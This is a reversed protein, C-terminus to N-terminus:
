KDLLINTIHKSIVSYYLLFDEFCKKRKTDREQEAKKMLGNRQEDRSKWSQKQAM